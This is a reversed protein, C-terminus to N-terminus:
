QLRLSVDGSYVVHEGDPTVLRIGGYENLGTFIGTIPPSTPTSETIQVQQNLYHAHPTWAKTITEFGQSEWMNILSVTHHIVGEMVALRDGTIDDGVQTSTYPANEIHPHWALNVGLGITYHHPTTEILIGATKAGDVFVDNPWKLTIKRTLGLDTLTNLVALGVVLSIGTVPQPIATKPLAYTCIVNGSQATTEGTQWRRGAVRGRGQTQQDTYLLTIPASEDSLLPVISDMTSPTQPMHHTTYTPSLPM